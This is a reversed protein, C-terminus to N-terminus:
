LGDRDEDVPFRQNVRGQLWRVCSSAQCKVSYPPYVVLEGSYSQMLEQTWHADHPTADDHQLIVDQLLSIQIALAFGSLDGIGCYHPIPFPKQTHTCNKVTIYNKLSMGFHSLQM